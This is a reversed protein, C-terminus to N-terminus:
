LLNRIDDAATWKADLAHKVKNSISKRVEPEVAWPVVLSLYRDGINPLTTDLLVRAKTQLQVAETSLLYLLYYPDLEGNSDKNVRFRRIERTLATEVDSPSVM